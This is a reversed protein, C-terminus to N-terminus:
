SGTQLAEGSEAKTEEGGDGHVRHGKVRESGSPEGKPGVKPQEIESKGLARNHNFVRRGGTKVERDM